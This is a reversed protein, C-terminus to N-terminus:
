ERVQFLRALGPTRLQKSVRVSREFRETLRCVTCEDRSKAVAWRATVYISGCHDCSVAQLEPEETSWLGDVHSILHFARDFTLRQDHFYKNKYKEFSKILAEAPPNGAQRLKDFIAYFDTAHVATILNAKLFWEASNPLGGPSTRHDSADFFIRLLESHQIGTIREVISPRAGLNLALRAWNLTVWHQDGYARSGPSYEAPLADVVAIPQNVVTKARRV